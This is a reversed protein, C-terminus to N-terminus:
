VTLDLWTTKLQSYKDLAHLSKDRGFGSQKFGGFPVAMNATNYTNVWVTGARVARALRHAKTVDRTWVAAALGYISDNAIEVAHDADRATIVSLVPGFIEEQAIRMENGVEGFITPEVFWGGSEENVRSGGKVLSAGDAHGAEIYRLVTEMQTQDILAGTKTAPDYPDGVAWADTAACLRELFEDRIAEEVILRSGSSCMEGQNVFAGLAAGQAAKELDPADALVINPSKGGCELSVIKMNSEGAYRLFFKGVQTSGTFAIKDVDMHRGLAEGAEEGLGPLAQCIGAPVGAQAILEVLRLIVLPAQEAPKVVIANGAALAPALKWVPMGIPFNWPVIAAVVGLPERTILALANEGTPAIEDYQKDIAEAYWQFCDAAGAVEGLSLSIPKGTDLTVIAALEASHERVLEAVRLLVRKREKPDARSWGGDEFARRAAAVAVDVDTRDCAAVQAIESGTIPSLLPLTRGSAAPRWAGDVFAQTRLTLAAARAQWDAPTQTTSM